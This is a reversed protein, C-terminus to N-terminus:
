DGFLEESSEEFAEAQYEVTPEWDARIKSGDSVVKVDLDIREGDITCTAIGTYDNGGKHVLTFDSIVMKAGNAKAKDIMMKKVSKELARTSLGGGMKVGISIVILVAAAIWNWKSNGFRKLKASFSNDEDEHVVYQQSQQPASAGGGVTQGCKPCFKAGDNVQTGCNGCFAM